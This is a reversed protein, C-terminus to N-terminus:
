QLLRATIMLPRNRHPVALSFCLPLIIALVCFSFESSMVTPLPNINSTFVSIYYKVLPGRLSARLDRLKLLCARLWQGGDYNNITSSYSSIEGSVSPQIDACYWPRLHIFCTRHYHAQPQSVPQRKKISRSPSHFASLCKLEAPERRHSSFKTSTKLHLLIFTTAAWESPCSGPFLCSALPM